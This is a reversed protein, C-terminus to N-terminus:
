LFSLLIGIIMLMCLQKIVRTKKNIIELMKLNM